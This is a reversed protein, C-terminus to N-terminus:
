KVPNWGKPDFETIKPAIDQTRKGLDKEFVVGDQNVIFTMVGSRGYDAPYALLGFGGVQRGKNDIYNKAGGSANASQKKLPLYFYGHYPTSRGATSPAYGEAQAAALLQGAPSRLEDARTPWYLGNKRGADSMLKQAYQGAEQGDHGVTAYDLQADVYGKAVAIAGLENRGIRRFVVENAGASSNFYFGEESEVIPVAFPWPDKGVTLTVMGAEVGGLEHHEEYASLFRQRLARDAVPDGSSILEQQVGFIPELQRSDDSRLATILAAVAADPSPFKEPKNKGKARIELGAATVSARGRATAKAESAGRDIGSLMSANSTSEVGHSMLNGGDVFGRDGTSAQALVLGPWPATLM